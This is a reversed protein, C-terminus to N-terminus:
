ESPSGKASASRGAARKSSSGNGNKEPEQFDPMTRRRADIICATIWNASWDDLRAFNEGNPTADDLWWEECLLEFVARNGAGIHAKLESALGGGNAVVQAITQTADAIADKDGKSYPLRMTVWPRSEGDADISAMVGKDIHGRWFVSDASDEKQDLPAPYEYRKIERAAFASKM